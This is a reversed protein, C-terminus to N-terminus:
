GRSLRHACWGGGDRAPRPRRPALPGGRRRAASGPPLGPRARLGSQAPERGAGRDRRRRRDDRVRTHPGAPATGGGHETHRRRSGIDHRLVPRDERHRDAPPRPALLDLLRHRLRGARHARRNQAAGGPQAAHERQRHDGRIRHNRPRALASRLPMRRAAGRDPGLPRCRGAPGRLPQGRDRPRTRVSRGGAVLAGAPVGHASIFSDIEGILGIEQAFPVFDGPNVLGREPHPWRVLVEFGALGYTQLNMMPQYHAILDGNFIAAKLEEELEVRALVLAHMEDRYVEFRDKGLKKAQYMAIDANRLLQESTIGEKDFAIGISSAARVSKTGLRVPQRLCELIREALEAVTEPASVDEVLIAFEDGGLRAATDAARLLDVLSKAVTRLLQDGEGHGLTDNVTKFDDLDIFLVALHSGFRRGRALAHELRDQFLTKNALRTLSDHFAWYHLEDELLKRDTVDRFSFVRGVVEGGVRQPMSYREVVRGDNFEILDFSESEPELDLEELRSRFTEPDTLQDLAFALTAVDDHKAVANDPLGWIEAFRRNFDTIRRTTDVVLIGDATSDLTATLRSLAESLDREASLQATADHASIVLGEVTPDDLMNVISFDFPMVGGRDHRLLHIRATVPHASTAGRRAAALAADFEARDRNAVIRSLPRGEIQETDHGLLRTIVGSVSEVIGDASVLMIISGVNHVLSRFQAEHGSALEFKRRETLDRLCLLIVDQGMWTIPSGIMEILRWGSAANMRIEIPAGVDKSQITSLSVLAWELDDPHVLDLGSQGTWDELSREFLREASHNGWVLNGTADVIVVADPLHLFADAM